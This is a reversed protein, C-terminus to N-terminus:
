LLQNWTIERISLSTLPCYYTSCQEIQYWKDLKFFTFFVWPPTNIKTWPHKERKKFQVFPILDRLADCIGQENTVRVWKMSINENLLISILRNTGLQVRERGGSFM